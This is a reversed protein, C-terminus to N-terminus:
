LQFRHQLQRCLNGRRAGGVNAKYLLSLSGDNSLGFAQYVCAPECNSPGAQPTLSSGLVVGSTSPSLDLAYVQVGSLGIGLAIAGVFLPLTRNPRM